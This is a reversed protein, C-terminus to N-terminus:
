RCPRASLAFLPAGDVARIFRVEEEDPVLLLNAVARLQVENLPEPGALFIRGRAETSAFTHGAKNSFVTVYSHM